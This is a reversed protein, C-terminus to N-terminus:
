RVVDCVVSCWVVCCKERGRVWCLVWACVWGCEGRLGSMWGMGDGDGTGADGTRAMGENSVQFMFCASLRVRVGAARQFEWTGGPEPEHEDGCRSDFTLRRSTISSDLRSPHTNTLHNHTLLQAQPLNM